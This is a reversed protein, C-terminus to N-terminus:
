IPSLKLSVDIRKCDSFYAMSMAKIRPIVSALIMSAVFLKAKMCIGPNVPKKASAPIKLSASKKKVKELKSTEKASLQAREREKIFYKIPFSSSISFCKLPRNFSYRPAKTPEIAPRKREAMATVMKSIKKGSNNGLRKSQTVPMAVSIIAVTFTIAPNHEEITNKM